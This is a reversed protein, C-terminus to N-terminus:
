KEPIMHIYLHRRCTDFGQYSLNQGVPCKHKRGEMEALRYTYTYVVWDGVRFYIGRSMGENFFITVLYFFYFLLHDILYRHVYLFYLSSFGPSQQSEIDYMM